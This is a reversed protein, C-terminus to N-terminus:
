KKTQNIREKDKVWEKFQKRYFAYEVIIWISGNIRGLYNLLKTVGLALLVLISTILISWIFVIGTIYYLTEM